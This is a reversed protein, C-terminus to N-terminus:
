RIQQATETSQQHDNCAPNQSTHKNVMVEAAYHIANAIAYLLLTTSHLSHNSICNYITLRLSRLIINVLILILNVLRLLRRHRLRRGDNRGDNRGNRRLRRNCCGGLRRSLLRLSHSHILEQRLLTLLLNTMRLITTCLGELILEKNLAGHLLRLTCRLLNFFKIHRFHFLLAKNDNGITTRLRVIYIYIYQQCLFLLRLLDLLSEILITKNYYGRSIRLIHNRM